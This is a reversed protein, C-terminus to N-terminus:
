AVLKVGKLFKEQIAKAAKTEGKMNLAQHLLSWSALPHTSHWLHIMAEKQAISGKKIQKIKSFKTDPDRIGLLVGLVEWDQVDKTMEFVNKPTFTVDLLDNHSSVIFNDFLIYIFMNLMRELFYLLDSLINLTHVNGYIPLITNTSNYRTLSTLKFDEVAKTCRGIHFFLAGNCIEAM